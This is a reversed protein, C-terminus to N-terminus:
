HEYLTDLIDILEPDMSPSKLADRVESLVTFIGQSGPSRAKQVLNSFITHFEVIESSINTDIAKTPEFQNSFNPIEGTRWSERFADIVNEKKFINLLSQPKGEAAFTVLSHAYICEFNDELKEYGVKELLAIVQTNQVLKEKTRKRAWNAAELIISALIGSFGITIM